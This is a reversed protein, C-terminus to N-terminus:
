NKSQLPWRCAYRPNEYSDYIKIDSEIGQKRYSEGIENVYRTCKDKYVDTCGVIKVNKIKTFGRSVHLSQRGLGIAGVNIVDGFPNTKLQPKKGGKGANGVCSGLVITGALGLASTKLFGRRDLAMAKNIKTTTEYDTCLHM